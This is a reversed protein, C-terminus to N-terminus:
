APAVFAREIDAVTRVGALSMTNEFEARLIRLV